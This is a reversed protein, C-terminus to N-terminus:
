RTKNLSVPYDNNARRVNRLTLPFATLLDHTTPRDGSRCVKAPFTLRYTTIPLRPVTPLGHWLPRLVNM